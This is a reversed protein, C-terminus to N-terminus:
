VAKAKKSKHMQEFKLLQDSNLISSLQQHRQKQLEDMQQKRQEKTLADNTHISKMKTKFEGNVNKMKAQQDVTLNLEKMGKGFDKGRGELKSSKDMKGEKMKLKQEPTLLNEVTARHQKILSERRERQEKVTITENKQLEQMQKRFSENLSKMQQKQPDSLNIDKFLEGRMEMRNGKQHREFKKGTETKQAIASFSITAIALMSLIIKKM